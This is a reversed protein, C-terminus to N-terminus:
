SEIEEKITSTSQIKTEQKQCHYALLFEGSLKKDSMFETTNFLNMIEDLENLRNTIFGKRSHNLKQIYPRLSLEITRWTSYPRASFRQMLREATTIRNENAIRLAEKEIREAIALLRGYLYDRSTNQIELSMSYNRRKSQIPHRHYFGRYLACVVGINRKWEWSECAFPNSARHICSNLIDPPLPRGEMICPLLREHLNKKLSDSVSKGYAADIIIYPAPASVSWISKYKLKKDNQQKLPMNYRQPWAFDLHWSELLDIFEKAMCERYYSVGMRGPTASDIMMTIISEYDNLESRYGAMKKNLKLAFSQGLDRGHDLKMMNDEYVDQEPENMNNKLFSFTDILPAPIPKCSVAWAVFRQDGNRHGQRSILWRLANHAKQTVEYSIALAESDLIFKGRYTYGEKDNSSILKAKDGTHRIKAPHNASLISEKGSVYCLGKKSKMSTDFAIWSKQLSEDNWTEANPDSDIEVTWCILANGQDLCGNEKPLVKFLLPIPNDSNDEYPWYSLLINKSDVHIIRADILDKLINGKSIYQYVTKAKPHCYRSECWSLLLKQYGDFYSNKKSSYYSYDKAVYQLKDALPHPAEGRTRGASQETAPLIIKIKELVTAKKFNGNVDLVINIHANQQTHCIPLLKDNDSLDLEAGREYTEYLKTMWSM